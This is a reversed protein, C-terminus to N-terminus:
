YGDPETASSIVPTYTTTTTPSLTSTPTFKCVPILLVMGIHITETGLGNLSILEDKSISFQAAIGSLTDNAQVTYLIGYCNESGVMTNTSELSPTSVPAAIVAPLGLLLQGTRTLQWASFVFVVFVIAVMARRMALINRFSSKMSRKTRLDSISLPIPRLNWQRKMVPLLTEELEKIEAAYARCELCAKLHAVLVTKEQRSLAEDAQFHILRRAEQHTIQM